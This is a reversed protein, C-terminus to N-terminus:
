FELTTQFPGFPVLITLMLTKSWKPGRKPGDPRKQLMESLCSEKAEFPFLLTQCFHKQPFIDIRAQIPRFPDLHAWFSDCITFFVYTSWNPGKRVRKSWKPTNVLGGHKTWIPGNKPWGWDHRTAGLTFFLSMVVDRQGFHVMKQGDGTMFPRGWLSFLSMMM